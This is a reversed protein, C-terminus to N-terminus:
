SEKLRVFWNPWRRPLAPNTQHYAEFLFDGFACPNELALFKAAQFYDQKLNEISSAHDPYLDSLFIAADSLNHKAAHLEGCVRGEFEGHWRSAVTEALGVFRVLGRDFLTVSLGLLIVFVLGYVM